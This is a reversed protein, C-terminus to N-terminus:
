RVEVGVSDSRGDADVVTIRAFGPGDPRWPVDRAVPTTAIRRGDVLWTLPRRGGSASLIVPEDEGMREVTASDLPFILRPPDAAPAPLGGDGRGLRRLLAPAQAMDSMAAGGPEPPLRDFVHFLIPAATNRGYRGPVPTGDPRGTWVGVTYRGSVGFAWADRFGFSTGTKLAVPRRRRVEQTQVVGAPPAAGELIRLVQAAAAPAMLSVGEAKPADALARLPAVRGGNALGAYLAAMDWLDVAAGGLALPLGPLEVGRPLTLRVGSRELAAAFRVPGVRDLVAVAPVNLSRQLAERITLDGDFDRDFNRPAYDGFRTSVDAVLTEPHILGDNFGLGYIFPKLASGPSRRAHLLDIWGQRRGDLPDSGGVAALVARSANDVVVIALGAQEHLGAAEARALDQVARQLPGDLTTRLVREGPHTRVLREALHAADMLAPERATPIPEGSGERMQAETLVGADVARELVKARAARAREPFRDPRLATPSQPLAVLLAAEGVTLERPEKAFYARTAARVGELNGGYPALTLYFSLIADKGFRAELQSARAMDRLKGTLSRPHPELLRAVQMTITSAGSVVRGSAANQATARLLALPDVGAHDWFRRDEYALLLRVFLPDVPDREAVPLRWAGEGNLFVRLPRGDRDLVAPSLDALRSLDPPFLRDLVVAALGLVVLAVVLGLALGAAWRRIRRRM